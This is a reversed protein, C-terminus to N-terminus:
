LKRAASQRGSKLPKVCSKVRTWRGESRSSMLCADLFALGRVGDSVTPVQDSLEEAIELSLKCQILKAADTYIQAFAELYGEPHGSPLRTANRSAVSLNTLGRSIIQPAEGLPTYKLQNPHEQSWALGAREGYVRISLANENGPCVQSTWLVGRAGNDFRLMVQAHDDLRRGSVISSLEASVSEVELGTIFRVLHHAHSGLDSLSGTSGARTPDTRWSAQKHGSDEVRSALWDQVYEVQVVKIEGLKGAKTIAQAERVMPYGSYNHTLFLLPDQEETLRALDCADELSTALPKECIVHIGALIFAKAIRAHSDNPTVIAVADIRDAREAERAAMSEFDPYCRAPDLGLGVGDGVSRMPDSSFAGATLVFHGDLRAAMRHVSGIFAGSGGGVMGLRLVRLAM